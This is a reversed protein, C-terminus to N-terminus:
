IKCDKHKQRDGILKIYKSVREIVNWYLYEPLEHLWHQDFLCINAVVLVPFRQLLIMAVDIVRDICRPWLVDIWMNKVEKLTKAARQIVEQQKMRNRLNDDDIWEITKPEAAVIMSLVNADDFYCNEHSYILSSNALRKVILLDYHTSILAFFYSLCSIQSRYLSHNRLYECVIEKRLRDNVIFVAMLKFVIHLQSPKEAERLLVALPQLYSYNSDTNAGHEVACEITHIVDDDDFQENSGIQGVLWALCTVDHMPLHDVDAGNRILIQMLHLDNNHAAIRLPTEGDRNIVNVNAGNEALYAVVDTHRKKVAVHLATWSNSSMANVEVGNNVLCTVAELHGQEAAIYLAAARSPDGCFGGIHGANVNCGNDILWQMAEVHGCRAATLLMPKDCRSHEAIVDCGNEKLCHMFASQGTMVAALLPSDHKLASAVMRQNRAANEFADCAVRLHCFSRIFLQIIWTHNTDVHKSLYLDIKKSLVELVTNEEVNCM